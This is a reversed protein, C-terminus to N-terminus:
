LVSEPPVGRAHAGRGPGDDCERRVVKGLCSVPKDLCAGKPDITMEILTNVNFPMRQEREWVLCLGSRSIDETNLVYSASTGITKSEVEIGMQVRPARVRMVSPRVLRSIVSSM